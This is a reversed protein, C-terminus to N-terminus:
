RKYVELKDKDIITNKTMKINPILPSLIGNELVKETTFLRIEDYLNNEIFSNITIAGGEVILSLIKRKYLENLIEEIPNSFDIKVYITNRVTDSKINNFVLTEADDDFINYNNKLSLSKDIVLRMPNKGECMRVTLSPNDATVTKRGVLIADEEARWNHVLTKSKKSTMWFPKEQNIPAIYNDKSKAWKLIIYPRKYKHFYFFRRNLDKCKEELVGHVVKISNDELKKIGRGSVESFPDICGIVVKSFNHRIILDTCPPTKGHHCCPELNVYLTSKSLLSKDKVAKIANVEAHSKGYEQHYGEGIIEDNYVIICGVMPNPSVNLIGKRALTICKEIFHEHTKM